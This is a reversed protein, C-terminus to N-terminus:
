ETRLVLATPTRSATRGPFAAVLNAFILAGLVVLVVTLVPTTPDPVASLNHAFLTWLQRGIVIGLPTGIVVGIVAAVTSQWAIAASLQRQTFGLAKLLALDRRRRRVSATLTLALALVAGAALAAALVVPTAGITRYNVIQAPRQVGLVSVSDNGEAQPDANIANNAATAIRQLGARGAALSVGKRLRVFVYQPGNLMPDPSVSARQWAPPEVASPVLAGTGMSPHSAIISSYGIAPFTATGVVVLPTPPIYFPASRPTGESLYVTEGVHKHLLALTASGMVVENDAGLGHGSLVPPAVRANPNAVISPVFQGDIQVPFLDAGSWAAVDPDHDLAKLSQPPVDNSTSLMYDWNWGYLPPHSVLTGLSSAFTLASLVVAVALVAGVLASRVPVSTRGQGPELAFRVGVVGAVPMGASQASRALSSTRPTARGPGQAVRHPARLYALGVAAAGLVGILVAVGTGLVTWDFAVGRDPYVVRVPGLPALPSLAVALAAAVLSGLVVATLVGILGDSATIAPGAGLARLVRRDEDDWRLQRSIAQVGVLLAVLGAIVGFAGLAVSEPKLALEVEGVVRSTANFLFDSGPRSVNVFAQEVAAVDHGRHDLQLGYLTPAGPALTLQGGPSVASVARMFAPTFIVFGSTRDVDDEVVQRNLVVIGMLHMDVKLAPAVRPTGFAKASIQARTYYGMAVVQGVHLHSMRAASAPMVAEDVRDPDAMRGDTVTARDMDTWMGDSSGVFQAANAQVGSLDPAGDPALPVVAPTVLAAVRRVDALRAVMATRGPGFTALGSGTSGVSLTLDSPNTSAMFTPYSSQTRRGAEVSTMAVGGILGILVVVALYGGRRRAFTAGLRYRAVRLVQSM